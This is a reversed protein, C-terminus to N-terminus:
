PRRGPDTSMSPWTRGVAPKRRRTRTDGAERLTCRSHRAHRADRRDPARAGASRNKGADKVASHAAAANAANPDSGATAQTKAVAGHTKANTVGQENPAACAVLRKLALMSPSPCRSVLAPQSSTNRTCTRGTLSSAEGRPRRYSGRDPSTVRAPPRRRQDRRSAVARRGRRKLYRANAHSRERGSARREAISRTPANRHRRWQSRRPDPLRGSTTDVPRTSPCTSTSPWIRGPAPRRHFAM